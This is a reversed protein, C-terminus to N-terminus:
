GRLYDPPPDVEFKPNASCYEYDSAVEVLKKRLANGYIYSTHTALDVNDRIRHESFGRHWIEGVFGFQKKAEFSFGGKIFQVVRELSQDEAPTITLHFHDPMLTFDHLQFKRSERYRYIVAVFLEAM